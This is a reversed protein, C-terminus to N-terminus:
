DNSGLWDGQATVLMQMLMQKRALYRERDRM